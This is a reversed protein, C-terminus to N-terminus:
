GNGRRRTLDGSVGRARFPSRRRTGGRRTGVEAKAEYLTPLRAREARSVGEALRHQFDRVNRFSTLADTLSLERLQLFLREREDAYRAVVAGFLAFGSCTALTLYVYLPQHQHLEAVFPVGRDSIHLASDAV